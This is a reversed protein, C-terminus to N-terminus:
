TGASGVAGDDAIALRLETKAVVAVHDPLINSGASCAAVTNDALASVVAANRARLIGAWADWRWRDLIAVHVLRYLRM